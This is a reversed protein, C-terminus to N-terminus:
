LSEGDATLSERQMAQLAAYDAPLDVDLLIGPDDVPVFEIKNEHRRVVARAGEELPAELLDAFLSRSFLVPHGRRGQYTPIIIPASSKQFGAVLARVVKKSVAPHDVLCVLAGSVSQDQLHRLAVQLSSLQGLPYDPNPLIAIDPATMTQAITKANHGLVVVLPSVEGRLVQILHSLFTQGGLPLLAKDSGMRRSEGAALIIGAVAGM